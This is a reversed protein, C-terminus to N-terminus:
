RTCMHIMPVYVVRISKLLTHTHTLIYASIGCQPGFLKMTVHFVRGPRESKEHTCQFVHAPRPILTTTVLEDAAQM